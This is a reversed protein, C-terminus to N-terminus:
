FIREAAVHGEACSSYTQLKHMNSSNTTRIGRLSCYDITNQLDIACLMVVNDALCACAHGHLAAPKCRHPVPLHHTTLACGLESAVGDSVRRPASPLALLTATAPSRPCSCPLFPLPRVLFLFTALFSYLFVIIYITRGFNLLGAVLTVIVSLKTANSKLICALSSCLLTGLSSTGTTPWCTSSKVQDRPAHRMFACSALGTYGVQINLFYCGAKVFFFDLLVVALAKSMTVGLIEPHFRANLGSHLAALLIYTVLAM